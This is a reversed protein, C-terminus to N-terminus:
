PRRILIDERRNAMPLSPSQPLVWAHFGQLRARSLIALVVSDDICGPEIKNFEVEPSEDSGTYEKHCQIGTESSFFRKRMTVNPIDGLLLEGQPRLLSLARDLFAWLNSEAFVYQIVSYIIICDIGGSCVKELNHVEPFRGPCKIIYDREPLLSLMELNDIFILKHNQEVCLDALMIPLLSCGPGIELVKKQSGGISDLKSIVDAFIDSERGERYDNPFGVKEHRSLKEDRAMRRFDNYTLGAFPNNEAM